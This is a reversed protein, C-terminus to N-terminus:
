FLSEPEVSAPPEVRRYKTNRSTTSKETAEVVGDRRLVTLWRRVTQDTLGTREALEARSVTTTGLAELIEERRDAPTLRRNRIGSDDAGLRSVLRYRAWRRTGVQEVLERAVLDQLEATAVRSDLGTAKRYTVNDLINGAHLAALAM